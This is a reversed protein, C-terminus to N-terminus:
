EPEEGALEGEPDPEEEPLGRERRCIPQYSCFKPCRGDIPDRTVRGSQIQGIIEEAKVRAANLAEDFDEDSLQDKPRTRMPALDEKLEKRLLGKPKRKDPSTGGLPRYLAGAVELGWLERVALLYLQLQLKGKDLMGTGGEVNAGSKYDQILAEGGPGLDIRDIRGHIGGGSLQLAKMESDEDGFSAETLSADPQFAAGARAEDILFAIVLGEVRRLTAATDAHERPLRDPGLEAALERARALWQDLNDVTPRREDVPPDLYLRELVLHAVSGATLAEGEPDISQPNLERQVFWRYPCVAYEELTTPGFLDKAAM